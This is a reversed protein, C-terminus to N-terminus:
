FYYKISVLVNKDKYVGASSGTISGQINFNLRKNIDWNIEGSFVHGVIDESDMRLKYKLDYYLDDAGFFIEEKNLYHRWNFSIENVCFGKPSFYEGVKDKFERHFYRYKVTLRTPDLLLYYLIDFGPESKYNDDSYYSFLYDLGAKFRKTIDFDLREKFSDRYYHERIVTSNNELRERKYSFKSVGIDWIRFNLSGGFNHMTKIDKDYAYLSYFADFWGDPNQMYVFKIKGKNEVVDNFDNFNRITLGYAATVRLNNNIVPFGIEERFTHRRIDNDRGTSDAEFFEYDTKSYIHKSILEAKELGEKARFHTPSVELIRRYDNIAEKWMGQYSYIQSLDFMAEVNEPRKEILGTYFSIADKVRNNWYAMKAKMELDIAEDPDEKLIKKYEEISRAYQRQWGLIRAKQLRARKDEKYDLVEDYLALAQRYQKNWSLVDALKRKVEWDDNEKLVEEYLSIAQRFDKNYAFIDALLVKANLNEPDEKLIDRCIEKAKEYDGDMMHAEALLARVDEPKGEEAKILFSFCLLFPLILVAWKIKM